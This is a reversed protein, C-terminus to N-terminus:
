KKLLTVMLGRIQHFMDTNRYILTYGINPLVACVVMRLFLIGFTNSCSILSCIGYTLICLSFTVLAYKMHYGYYEKLRSLQFYYKFVIRSGWLFSCVFITIITALLIGYVGFFKGLVFNLILNAVTEALSRYRYKWWLGNASSYISRMDGTTLLYFYICFLLMVRIPFTMKEGMWLKMFPQFLCLLCITCWGSIWMYLFDLKKLEIFNEEISKVVVHNGVGGFFSTSIVSLMVGIAHMIYYYNNYVATVALGLFMSAFISDFANRSAMCAKSLFAGKVHQKIDQILSPSLVGECHYQPFMRKVMHVIRLNNAITFIPMMLIFYYYNHFLFLMVIQSGHLLLTIIMNTSSNVDERQYVVLLSQMYAYMFYSISTNILYILYLFVLNLGEPYTGSILHPLFPILVMGVILIIIGIGRYIRKYFNLLACITTTDNEAVPRYMHYVVATGFGLETLNLISIISSFLSNLGLYEAGLVIQIVTRSVFPCLILTLKNAIGFVINRKANEMVNLKM